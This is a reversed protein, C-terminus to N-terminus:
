RRYTFHYLAGDDTSTVVELASLTGLEQASYLRASEERNFWALVINDGSALEEKLRMLDSTIPEVSRYEFKRPSMRASMGTLLYITFPANSLIRGSPPHQNLYAVLGSSRWNASTYGGGGGTAVSEGATTQSAIVPWALWLVFIVAVLGRLTRRWDPKRIQSLLSWGSYLILLLLPMYIPSLLRSDIRDYAVLTSSAILLVM